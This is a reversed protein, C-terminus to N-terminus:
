PVMRSNRLYLVEDRLLEISPIFNDHSNGEYEIVNLNYAEKWYNKIQNPVSEKKIIIYHPASVSKISALKQMILQIDPDSMSYGIFLVTHTLFLAELIKYFEPYKRMSTHYQIKSFIMKDTDQITGHAKIILNQPSKLNSIIKSEEYYNAVITTGGDGCEREYLHDFNTTIVIKSDIEKIAKHALSPTYSALVFNDKLYKAYEGSDHSDYIGQLAMLFDRQKLQNEIFEIQNKEARLKQLQNIFGELFEDWVKPSNGNEDKATASLGSGTFIVCRRYVLEEILNDPLRIM